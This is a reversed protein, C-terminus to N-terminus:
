GVTLAASADNDTSTDGADVTPIAPPTGLPNTEPGQGAVPQVYAAVDLVTGLPTTTPIRAAVDVAISTVGPSLPGKGTCRVFPFGASSTGKVCKRTANNTPVTPATSKPLLLTLTWGANGAAPGDSFASLRWTVPSGPQWGGSPVPSLLDIRSSLNYTTDGGVSEDVNYGVPDVEDPEVQKDHIGTPCLRVDTAADCGPGFSDPDGSQDIHTIALKLPAGQSEGVPCSATPQGRVCGPTGNTAGVIVNATVRALGGPVLTGTFVMPIRSQADVPGATMGTVGPSTAPVNLLVDHAPDGTALHDGPALALVASLGTIDTTGQNHLQASVTYRDGPRCIVFNGDTCTSTAWSLRASVDVANAPVQGAQLAPPASSNGPWDPLLGVNFGSMDRTVKSMSYQIFQNDSPYDNDAGPGAPCSLTACQSRFWGTEVALVGPGGVPLGSLTYAGDADTVTTPTGAGSNRHVRIGAVGPEGADQVGNNNLDRFVVGSVTVSGAASAAAPWGGLAAPAFVCAAALGVWLARSRAGLFQVNSNRRTQDSM